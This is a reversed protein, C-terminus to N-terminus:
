GDDQEKEAELQAEREIRQMLEAHEIQMTAFTRTDHPFVRNNLIRLGVERQGARLGDLPHGHHTQQFLLCDELISWVVLRGAPTALVSAWAERVDKERLRAAIEQTM